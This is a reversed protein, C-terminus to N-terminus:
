EFIRKFIVSKNDERLSEGCYGANSRFFNCDKYCHFLCGECTVNEVVQIKSGRYEFIEGIPRTKYTMM